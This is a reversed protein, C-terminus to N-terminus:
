EGAARQRKRQAARAHVQDTPTPYQRTVCALCLEERPIGLGRLLGPLSIYNVSTCGMARRIQEGTKGFAILRKEDPTDIGYYCPGIVPPCYYCMHTERAGLDTLRAAIKRATTGRVNSDDVVAVRKGQIFDRIFLFKDDIAKQRKDDSTEQFSRKNEAKIIAHAVPLGLREAFRHGASIATGPLPIVVDVRRKLHEHERALVDGLEGRVVEVYRGKFRSDPRAFYVFEFFCFAERAPSVKADWVHLDHDIFLAEGPELERLETYDGFYNFVSSESALGIEILRGRAGKRKALCLPRIGHPDKFALLGREVVSLVSYGGVLDGHVRALAKFLGAAYAHNDGRHVHGAQMADILTAQIVKADVETQFSFGKEQLRRTQSVMNILDGNNCTAMAPRDTIVPQMNRELMEPTSRGSTPYRTHVIGCNGKLRALDTNMFAILPPALEGHQYFYAGDHTVARTSRDGRNQLRGAGKALRQAVPERGILGFIGCMNVERPPFRFAPGM